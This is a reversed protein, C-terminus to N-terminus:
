ENNLNHENAHDAAEFVTGNYTDAVSVGLVTLKEKTQTCTHTSENYEVNTVVDKLVTNQQQGGTPSSAGPLFIAGVVYQTITNTQSGTSGVSDMMGVIINWAAGNLASLGISAEFGNTGSTVRLYVYRYMNNDAIDHWDQQVQDGASINVYAGGICLESGPLYICLRRGILKLKYPFVFEEAQAPATGGEGGRGVLIASRVVQEKVAGFVDGGDGSTSAWVLAVTAALIVTGSISDVDLTVTASTVPNTSTEDRWVVLYLPQAGDATTALDSLDDVTYYGPRGDVESVGDIEDPPIEEDAVFVSGAPLYVSLKADGGETGGVVMWPFPEAVTGRLNSAKANKVGLAAEHRNIADAVSAGWSARLKSDKAPNEIM